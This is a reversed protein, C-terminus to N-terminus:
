GVRDGYRWDSQGTKDLLVVTSLIGVRKELVLFAHTTLEERTEKAGTGRLEFHREKKVTSHPRNRKAVKNPIQIPVSTKKKMAATMNGGTVTANALVTLVGTTTTHGTTLVVVAGVKVLVVGTVESLDAHPVEALGVLLVPPRGDVEVLYTSRIHIHLPMGRSAYEDIRHSGGISLPPCLIFLPFSLSFMTIPM